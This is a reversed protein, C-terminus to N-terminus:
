ERTRSYAIHRGDPSPDCGMVDFAGDSLQKSEGSAADVEFLHIERKLTYGLGDMKYPLRWCVEPQPGNRQPPPDGRGGRLDPDVALAVTTLLKRGDPTWRCEGAGLPFDGVQRAEGGDRDLLYLQISGGRNSTFALQQGDPSWRPSKDLGPGRTLQRPPTADSHFEWICSVYDNDERKVSRVTGAAVGNAGPAVHVDMIKAHLYLDQPTFKQM